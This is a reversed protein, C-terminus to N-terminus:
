TVREFRSAGSEGLVTLTGGVNQRAEIEVTAISGATAQTDTASLRIEVNVFSIDTVNVSVWTGGGIRARVDGNNASVMAMMAVVLEVNGDTTGVQSPVFIRRDAVSVYSASAILVGGASNAFRIDVPTSILVEQNDHLKGILEETLPSDRDIESDLIQQWAKLAM